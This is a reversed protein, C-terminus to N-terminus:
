VTFIKDTLNELTRIAYVYLKWRDAWGNYGGNIIKTIRRFATEDGLPAGDAITSLKRNAWWWCASRVAWEPQSLQGPDGVFDVGFAKSIQTYNSRGTIQILGRGKFRRGDGAMVNGLAKRYEYVEGSALEEVYRGQGSEHGIQALFTAVAAESTIGYEPLYKNFFPLFKQRNAETSKPWCKKLIENTIM